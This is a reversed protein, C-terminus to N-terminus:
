SVATRAKNDAEVQDRYENYSRPGRIKDYFAGIGLYVADSLVRRYEDDVQEKSWERLLYLVGTRDYGEVSDDYDDRTYRTSTFRRVRRTVGAATRDVVYFGNDSTDTPIMGLTHENIARMTPTNLVGLSLSSRYDDDFFEGVIQCFRAADYEGDVRIDREDMEKIFAYVSEPGGNWHLYVTPSVRNPTWWSPSHDPERSEYGAVFLVNARNGM